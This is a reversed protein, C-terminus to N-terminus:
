DKPAAIVEFWVANDQEWVVAVEHTGLRTASAFKGKAALRVPERNDWRAVLDNGQQWCQWVGKDTSVVVPHRGAGLRVEPAGITASYVQDRRMWVTQVEGKPTITLDGGDMPCGKLPWTGEGLKVAESFTKGDDRSSTIYMDRSGELANRFM